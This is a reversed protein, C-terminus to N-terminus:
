SLMSGVVLINVIWCWMSGWTNDKWYTYVSVGLTGLALSLLVLNRSLVLPILLFLFYVALAAYTSPEKTLWNWSLHGNPAKTMSYDKESGVLAGLVSIGAYSLLLPEPTSITLISAVPQLWLLGIAAISAEKNLEPYSWVIYEILQMLVITLSFFLVPLPIGRQVGIGIAALGLLFSQLSVEANWCM